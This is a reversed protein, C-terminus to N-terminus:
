YTNDSLRNDLLPELPNAVFSAVDGLQTLMLTEEEEWLTIGGQPHILMQLSLEDLPPSLELPLEDLFLDSEGVPLLESLGFAFDAKAPQIIPEVPTLNIPSATDILPVTTILPVASILDSVSLEDSEVPKTQVVILRIPEAAIERIGQTDTTYLSFEYNGEALPTQLQIFWNGSADVVSSGMVEGHQNLVEVMTAPVGKGAFTLRDEDSLSADLLSEQRQNLVEFSFNSADNLSSDIVAEDLLELESAALELQIFGANAAADAIQPEAQMTFQINEIEATADDLSETANFAGTDDSETKSAQTEKPQAVATDDAIAAWQGVLQVKTVAAAAKASAMIMEFSSERGVAAMGGLALLSACASGHVMLGHLSMVGNAQNLSQMLHGGESWAHSRVDVNQWDHAKFKDARETSFNQQILNSLWATPATGALTPTFLKM